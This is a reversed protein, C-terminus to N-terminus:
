SVLELYEGMLFLELYEVMDSDIKHSESIVATVLSFVAMIVDRETKLFFINSKRGESIQFKHDTLMKVRINTNGFVKCKRIVKRFLNKIDEGSWGWSEYSEDFDELMGIFDTLHMAVLCDKNNMDAKDGVEGNMLYEKFKYRFMQFRTPNKIQRFGRLAFTECEEIYREFNVM